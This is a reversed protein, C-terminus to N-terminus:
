AGFVKGIKERRAMKTRVQELLPRFEILLEKFEEVWALSEMIMDLKQSDTLDAAPETGTPWQHLDSTSAM